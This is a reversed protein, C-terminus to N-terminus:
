VFCHMTFSSQLLFNGLPNSVLLDFHRLKFPLPYITKVQRFGAEMFIKKWVSPNQHYRFDVSMKKKPTWPRNVGLKKLWLFLGSRCADTIIAVGGKDLMEKMKKATQIYREYTDKDKLAHHPSEYLHNISAFSLIIDFSNPRFKFENFDEAYIEINKFGLKEVRARQMNCVSCTSGDMEPEMSVVKKAGEIAALLTMLGRGSGVDLVRKNRFDVGNFVRRMKHCFAEFNHHGDERLFQFYQGNVGDTRIMPAELNM